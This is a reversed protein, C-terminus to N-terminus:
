PMYGDETKEICDVKTNLFFEVGNDAANEAFAITMHFPCVIAGTPAFLACVVDEALNPEMSRLEEEEVIRLGEVGNEVGQAMLQELVSRDQDKTCVILSGNRQYPFDLERSLDEMMKSGEVNFKAKLSGPYADFGAHVIASNAKSTGSCVDEEKDIVCM